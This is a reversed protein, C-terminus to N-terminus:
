AFSAAHPFKPILFALQYFFDLKLKVYEGKRLPPCPSKRMRGRPSPPNLPISIKKRIEQKPYQMKEGKEATTSPCLPIACEEGKKLPPFPPNINEGGFGRCLFRSGCITVKGRKKRLFKTNVFFLGFLPYNIFNFIM